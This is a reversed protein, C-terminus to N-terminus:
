LSPGYSYLAMVIHNHFVEMLAFVSQVVTAGAACDATREKKESAIIHQQQEGIMDLIDSM